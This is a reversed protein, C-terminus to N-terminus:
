CIISSQEFVSPELIDHAIIYSIIKGASTDSSEM